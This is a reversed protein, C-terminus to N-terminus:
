SISSISNPSRDKLKGGPNKPTADVFEIGIALTKYPAKYDVINDYCLYVYSLFPPFLFMTQTM